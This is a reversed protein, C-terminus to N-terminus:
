GAICENLFNLIPIHTRIKRLKLALNSILYLLVKGHPYKEYQMTLCHANKLIGNM